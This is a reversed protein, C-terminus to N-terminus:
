NNKKSYFLAVLFLVCGTLVFTGPEPIILEINSYITPQSDNWLGVRGSMFTTDVVAIDRIVVSDSVRVVQMGIYDGSRYVTVDYAVNTGWYLVINNLSVSTGGVERILSLGRSSDAEAYGANEWSMRYNNNVDTFGFVLGYRDNDTDYSAIRVKFIFNGTISFDSALTGGTNSNYLVSSGSVAWANASATTMPSTYHTWTSLVNSATLTYAYGPVAACIFLVLFSLIIRQM